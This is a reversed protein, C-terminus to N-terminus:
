YSYSEEEKKLSVSANNNVYMCVQGYVFVFNKKCDKKM